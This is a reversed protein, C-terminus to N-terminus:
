RVVMLLDGTATQDGERLVLREVTGSMPALVTTEMKMAELTCLPADREVKDGEKVLLAILSGPLPAAVHGRSSADARENLKRTKGSSADLVDISRAVGNLEFFVTRFGEDNVPSVTVMKISLMKGPEITVSIEEDQKLGYFFAHSPILAVDGYAARHELYEDFVKPYLVRSLADSPKVDRDPVVEISASVQQLDVAQLLSGPRRRDPSKGKLVVRVLEDPWGDQGYPQGLKGSVMDVVSQPFSTSEGKEKLESVSIGNSILYLALDGVV